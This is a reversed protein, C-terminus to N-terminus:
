SNIPLNIFLNILLLESGDGVEKRENGNTSKQTNNVICFQEQTMEAERWEGTAEPQSNTIPGYSESWGGRTAKNEEEKVTFQQMNAASDPFIAHFPSIEHERYFHFLLIFEGKSKEKESKWHLHLSYSFPSPPTLFPQVKGGPYDVNPPPHFHLLTIKQFPSCLPKKTVQLVSCIVM